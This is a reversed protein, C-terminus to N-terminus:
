IFIVFKFVDISEGKGGTLGWVPDMWLYQVLRRAHRCSCNLVGRVQVGTRDVTWPAHQIITGLQHGPTSIESSSFFFCLQYPMIYM